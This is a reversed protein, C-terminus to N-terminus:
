DQKRRSRVVFVLILIALVSVAIVLVNSVNTVEQEAQQTSVDEKKMVVGDKTKVSTAAQRIERINQNYQEAAAPANQSIYDRLKANDCVFGTCSPKYKNVLSTHLDAMQKIQEESAQWMGKRVTELMVATVEQLAAPNEREFFEHVGLNFKDKVYVDHIEDWLRDDIVSPKLVNWAFTNQVTAAFIGASTAEGKMKERIYTPNLITTRSEVGISEKLEQVRVNNRNRYDSFYADPDKGTVSRVANNLGGMFEYVHDLSLAGWTNSQRPHIVVDTRTLAAHFAHQRFTEWKKEDGYFAGMNNLYVDALEDQSEWKDSKMIMAQSSTGYGGNAGGFVRFTAIDRAEEPTLGKEILVRESEIVGESVQNVYEDDKAAAAMEVARNILFLRSAAIDRLMGSTQVVVDIRPRGLDKSPILRLDSVRGRSDRIPEVGLMYLVQAITAGGTQIFESSWLTYSVKRPISDNHRERYLEITNKALRVGKDWASESPTMEADIAYMNRGTPITNPNAIPDGASSPQTYGGNFANMLSKMEIEPSRELDRKYRVVNMITSEVQLISHAFNVEDKTYQEPKPMAPMSPKSPKSQPKAESKAASATESKGKKDDKSGMMKAMKRLDEYEGKKAMEEVKRIAFDPMKKNKRVGEVMAKIDAPMEDSKSATSKQAGSAKLDKEAMAMMMAMMGTPANKSKIIKRAKDLEEQTIKATRCVLEDTALAPNNLIRKVLNNAPNLYYKTFLPRRKAVEPNATGRMKDLVHLSYAIPEASMAFVSSIIRDKEYPIGMTYLQGTIKEVSLEEAFNEVRMIEAATYPKTLISDLGLDSHIGMEVAKAKVALSARRVENEDVKSTKLYADTEFINNYIKIRETLERYIGRVSSELFPPTLHSQLTAYARRKAIVGEGINSITYVYYHPITGVLRDPWDLSSLAVQKRPTFELSGHTGFHLMADAKFGHQIWLYQAIYSHPPAADTGHLVKFSDSGGGAATQPMIVVNGFQIRPIGLQGDETVLHKGPFEGNLAVVEAYKEPRLSKKVWSEYEEKSILEPSSKRMFETSAGEAYTGFVAGRNQIMTQLEKSTAPLKGLNYGERELRKLVNFLAPSVEMGGATMASQGAGKYYIIVIRKESNPKNQLAIHKNINEVFSQNREPIAKSYRMGEADTYHGFIAYPRIAGDIEPTVM